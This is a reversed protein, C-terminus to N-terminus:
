VYDYSSKNTFNQKKKFLAYFYDTSKQSRFIYNPEKIYGDPAPLKIVAPASNYGGTGYSNNENTDDIGDFITDNNKFEIGKVGYKSYELNDVSRNMIGNKAEEYYVHNFYPYCYTLVNGRDDYTQLLYDTNTCLDKTKVVAGYCKLNHASDNKTAYQKIDEPVDTEKKRWDPLVESLYTNCGALLWMTNISDLGLHTKNGFCKIRNDDSGNYSYDYLYYDIDYFGHEGLYKDKDKNFTRLYSVLPDDETLTTLCGGFKHWKEQLTSLSLSKEFGYCKKNNDVTDANAWTNIEADIVQPNQKWSVVMSDKDSLTTTCGANKWKTQYNALDADTVSLLGPNVPPPNSPPNPTSPPTSPPTPPPNSPPTSPSKKSSKTTFNSNYYYIICIILCVICVWLFMGLIPNNDGYDGYDGYDGNDGNDGNDGYYQNRFNSYYSM